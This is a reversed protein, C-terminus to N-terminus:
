ARDLRALALAADDFLPSGPHTRLFAGLRGRGVGADQEAARLADDLIRRHAAVGREPGPLVACGGTFAAALLLAIAARARM